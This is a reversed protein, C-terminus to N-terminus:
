LHTIQRAYVDDFRVIDDEGLYDGIQVEIIKLPEQENNELRHRDGQPIYSSQGAHLVFVEDNRIVTASGSVVIWHESRHHHMQLSLKGGPNILICKVKYAVGQQLVVYTGWPRRVTAHNEVVDPHERKLKEIILKLDSTRDRRSILTTDKMRVAVLDEVGLVALVGDESWLLNRESDYTVVSGVVVNGCEDKKRQHYLAEWNGLDSWGMEAAIVVVLNSKEIVGYDISLDPLARYIADDAINGKEALQLSAEYIKPACKKLESMFVNARFVFMGGNWYYVGSKLYREATAFDPKEKFSNVRQVHSGLEAIASGAEIYGYGTEPETPPIGFLAIYGAEAARIAKVWSKDFASQSQILHDSPFISIVAEPASKAIHATLWAIAPLTNRGVPELFVCDALQPSIEHLQGKIEFRHEMNAVTLIRSSSLRSCIRKVTQQLLSDVGNLSLLQKPWVSRSLPWLRTGAGGALVIAYHESDPM